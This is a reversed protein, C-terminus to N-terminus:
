KVGKRRNPHRMATRQVTLGGGADDRDSALVDKALETWTEVVRANAQQLIEANSRMANLSYTWFYGDEEDGDGFQLM